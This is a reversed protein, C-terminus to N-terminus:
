KSKKDKQITKSMGFFVTSSQLNAALVDDYRFLVETLESDSERVKM